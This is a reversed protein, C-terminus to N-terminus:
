IKYLGRKRVLIWYFINNPGDKIGGGRVETVGPRPRGERCWRGRGREESGGRVRTTTSM